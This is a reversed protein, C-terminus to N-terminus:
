KEICEGFCGRAFPAIQRKQFALATDRESLCGRVKEQVLEQPNAIHSDLHDTIGDELNSFLAERKQPSNLAEEIDRIQLPFANISEKKHVSQLLHTNLEFNSSKM